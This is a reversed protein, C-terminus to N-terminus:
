STLPTVKKGRQLLIFGFVALSVIFVIVGGSIMIARVNRPLLPAHQVPPSSPTRLFGVGPEFAAEHPVPVRQSPPPEVVASAIPPNPGTVQPTSVVPPSIPSIVEPTVPSVPQSPNLGPDPM